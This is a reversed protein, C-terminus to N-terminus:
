SITPLPKRHTISRNKALQKYREIEAPSFISSIEKTTSKRRKPAAAYCLSNKQWNPLQVGLRRCERVYAMLNECYCKQTGCNCMDMKCTKYYKIVNLVSNCNGVVSPDTMYKCYKQEIKPSVCAHDFQKSQKTCNIRSGICWSAGFSQVENDKAIRGKKMRFDDQANSNFNGCLGCLKNKFRAPVSVELFSKGSWLIKIGNDLTVLLNDDAKQIKVKDDGDFPLKMLQGNYKLRLRQQLNIRISGYKIAIRKTAARSPRNHLRRAVSKSYANAVRISFTNNACDSVLQYKGVGHFTYLKGDFTKYHPDGYVMCIGDVEECRSCCEGPNHVLKTGIPCPTTVNCRIMACSNMGKHCKCSRCADMRWSQGDEYLKGQYFCQSRFEEPEACAKCCSGPINRQLEPSCELVPCANRKCISTEDICTCNTCRDINFMLGERLFKSQLLCSNQVKMLTRTGHCRPCCEGPPHIQYHKNCQLVPCAKKTCLLGRNTCRCKVCPDDSTVDRDDTAIQGNLKCEPCTPCCKGKEPPIPNSCPAYCQLDSETVVGAECRLVRCPDGPDTWETHSRYRVGKYVCGECRQCCGDRNKESAVLFHCGMIPPCDYDNRCEVFGNKCICSFCRLKDIHDVAVPEGEIQCPQLDGVIRTYNAFTVSLGLIFIIASTGLQRPAKILVM